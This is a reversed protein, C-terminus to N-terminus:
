KKKFQKLKKIKNFFSFGKGKYCDYSRLHFIKQLFNGLKIKDASEMRVRKKNGSFRIIEKPIEVRIIHSYGLKFKLYFNSRIVKFGLGVLNLKKKLNLKSALLLNLNNKVTTLMPLHEVSKVELVFSDDKKYIFLNKPLKFFFQKSNKKILIITDSFSKVIKFDDFSSINLIFTLNGLM